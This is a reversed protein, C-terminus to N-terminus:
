FDSKEDTKMIEDLSSFKPRHMFHAKQVTKELSGSGYLIGGDVCWM